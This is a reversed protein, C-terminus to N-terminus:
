KSEEDDVKKATTPIIGADKLRQLALAALEQKDMKAYITKNEVRQVAMGEHRDLVDKQAKFDGQLAKQVVSAQVLPAFHRRIKEPTWNELIMQKLQPLITKNFQDFEILADVTRNQKEQARDHNVAARTKAKKGSKM